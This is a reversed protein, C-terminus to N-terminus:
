FIDHFSRTFTTLVIKIYQELIKNQLKKDFKKTLSGIQNWNNLNCIIEM